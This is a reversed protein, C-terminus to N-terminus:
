SDLDPQPCDMVAALAALIEREEATIEGDHRICDAMGKLLRPKLLPYCRALQNAAKVFDDIQISEASLLELTYLGATNAGRHFAREMEQRNAQPSTQQHGEHALMSLVLQYAQEVDTAQKHQSTILRQPEFDPALYHRVVEFLCWEFLEFQRDSRILLLLTTKFQKYQAKSLMRLAPLALEVLPLYQERTIKQLENATQLVQITLGVADIRKIYSLQQEQLESDDSILLACVFAMAGFPERLQHQLGTLNNIVSQSTIEADITRESIFAAAATAALAAERRRQKEHLENAAVAQPEIKMKRSIAQGNWQPDIRLIRDELPPHSAFDLLSGLGNAIFLHNAESASASFVRSGADYGAIIKLANAIGDPNRTFQVASADALFERQRSVAAKILGAFFTGLAGLIFIVVGLAFVRLDTTRRSVTGYGSGGTRMLFEGSNGIFVIGNLLAMMQLNLRMDGNLIHSFEHAVVGQLQERDFQDLAGQTIGIVADASRLGAAFANIGKQGKLIYVSPVPMNAALAMEEVVNLIKRQEADDTNPLIRTGGLAEAIASGGRRIQLWKYAIALFISGCVFATIKGFSAWNFYQPLPQRADNLLTQALQGSDQLQGDMLWFCIAVAINTIAILSVIALFFLALLWRTNRRAQDQHSFFNM